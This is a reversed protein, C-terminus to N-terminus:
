WCPQTPKQKEYGIPILSVGEKDREWKIKKNLHETSDNWKACLIIPVFSCPSEM